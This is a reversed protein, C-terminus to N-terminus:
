DNFNEGENDDYSFGNSANSLEEPEEDSEGVKIGGSTNEIESKLKFAVPIKQLIVSVTYNQFHIEPFSTGFM